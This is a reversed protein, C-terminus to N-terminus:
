RQQSKSPSYKGLLNQLVFESTTGAFNQLCRHQSNKEQEALLCKHFIEYPSCFYKFVDEAIWKANRERDSGPIQTDLIKVYHLWTDIVGLQCDCAIRRLENSPEPIFHVPKPKVVTAGDQQSISYCQPDDFQPDGPLQQAPNVPLRQYTGQEAEYRDKATPPKKQAECPLAILLAGVLSACVLALETYRM